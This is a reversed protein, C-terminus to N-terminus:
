FVSVDNTPLGPDDMAPLATITADNQGPLFLPGGVNTFTWAVAAGPGSPLAADLTCQFSSNWGFTILSVCQPQGNGMLVPPPVPGNPPGTFNVQVKTGVPLPMPGAPNSLTITVTQAGANYVAKVRADACNLTLSMPDDPLNAFGYEGADNAGQCDGNAAEENLGLAIEVADPLGDLDRDAAATSPVSTGTPIFTPYVWGLFKSNSADPLGVPDYGAFATTLNETEVILADVQLAAHRSRFLALAGTPRPSTRPYVYGEVGEYWWSMPQAPDCTPTQAVFNNAEAQMTTYTHKPQQGPCTLVGDPDPWRTSFRMLPQLDDVGTLPDKPTTFVFFSAAPQLFPHAAPPLQYAAQPIPIGISRGSDLLMHSPRYASPETARYHADLSRYIEGRMAAAALQANTTYLWSYLDRSAPMDPLDESSIESTEVTRRAYMAFMPTLRNGLLQGRSRGISREVAGRADLLGAGMEAPNYQGAPIVDARASQTLASRVSTASLLPNVSRMLGATATVHPAAMSTGTMPGHNSGSVGLNQVGLASVGLNTRAPALQTNGSQSPVPTYIGDTPHPICPVFPPLLCEPNTVRRSLAGIVQAGPAVLTVVNSQPSTGVNSGCQVGTFSPLQPDCRALVATQFPVVDALQASPHRRSPTRSAITTERWLLNDVDTAGVRIMAPHRQPLPMSASNAFSITDNGTSAVLVVDQATLVDLEAEFAKSGGLLEFSMNLATAGFRGTYELGRVPRLPDDVRIAQLVCTPCVGAVGFGNIPAALLSNVHQGHHLFQFPFPNPNSDWFSPPDLDVFDPWSRVQQGDLWANVSLHARLNSFPGSVVDVHNRKIGGDYSAILARGRTLAWAGTAGPARVTELSWQWRHPDVGINNAPGLPESNPASHPRAVAAREIFVRSFLGSAALRQRQAELDVGAPYRVMVLRRLIAEPRDPRLAEVRSLRREPIWLRAPSVQQAGAFLSTIAPVERVERALRASGGREPRL